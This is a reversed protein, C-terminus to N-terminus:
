LIGAKTQLKEDVLFVEREYMCYFYLFTFFIIFIKNGSLNDELSGNCIYEYVLLRHTGQTCSGLLMVLNQHRAQSLVYVESKFEKEGQLSAAKLQKVAVKMGDNLTGKFVLGFGGESIFNERSFGDTAEELEAYSFDRHSSIKPRRNQCGLCIPNGFEKVKNQQRQIGNSGELKLLQNLNRSEEKKLARGGRSKDHDDLTAKITNGNETVNAELSSSSASCIFQSDDM